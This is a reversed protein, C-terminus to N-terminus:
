GWGSRAAIEGIASACLASKGLFGDVASGPLLEAYDEEARTSILILVPRWGDAARTRAEDALRKAVELGCDPGLDVDILVVDPRLEGTLRLADARCSAMGVVEVGERELLERAACLFCTNDDVILCRMAM